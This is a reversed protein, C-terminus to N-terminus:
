IKLVKNKLESDIIKRKETIEIAALLSRIQKNRKINFYEIYENDSTSVTITKYADSYEYLSDLLESLSNINIEEKILKYVQKASEADKKIYCKTFHVLLSDIDSLHEYNKEIYNWKEKASDIYEHDHPQIYKM